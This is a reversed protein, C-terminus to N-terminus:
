KAPVALSVPGAAYQTPDGEALIEQVVKQGAQNAVKVALGNDEYGYKKVNSVPIPDGKRYALSGDLKINMAAIYTGYEQEQEQAYKETEAATAEVAQVVRGEPKVTEAM